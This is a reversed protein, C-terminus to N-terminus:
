RKGPGRGLAQQAEHALRLYWDSPVAEGDVDLTVFPADAPADRPSAAIKFM